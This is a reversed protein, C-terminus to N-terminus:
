RVLRVAITAFGEDRADGAVHGANTVRRWGGGASLDVGGAPWWRVTAEVERTREVVGAFRWPDPRPTGPTFSTGLGSEGRDTLAAAGSVQWAVSPDWGVRVRLRRSDPGSPFGLPAGQSEFSRGFFSTYVFRSLRTLETGWTVRRGRITGAGEVGLQWGIKDPNTAGSANVDDLLLEGYVRTGPVIRWAVDLSALVNNRLAVSSDPEDQVLLRQALVYPVAGALYVPQWSDSRYRAAEAVGIRLGPVAEWELRHAAFQEGAAADLTASMAAVHLRWAPLSGRMAFATIPASTRSLLLSAEDGPGWHFRERGFQIGWRAHAGTYAFFSEETLTTADGNKVIPDAFRRAGEFHGIVLHSSVLWRDLAAAMRLHVGSGSVFEPQRHRSVLGAGEMGVSLELREDDPSVLALTRPTVGAPRTSWAAADRALVREIRARAIALAPPLPAPEPGAAPWAALLESVQLPRSGLHPLPGIGGAPGLVELVRLEAELVDQVSVFENPAARAGSAILVTAALAAAFIKGNGPLRMARCVLM